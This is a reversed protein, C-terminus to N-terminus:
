KNVSQLLQSNMAGFQQAHNGAFFDFPYLVACFFPPFDLNKDSSPLSYLRTSIIHSDETKIKM